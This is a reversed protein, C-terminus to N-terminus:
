QEYLISLYTGAWLEFDPIRRPDALAVRYSEEFLTECKAVVPNSQATQARGIRSYNTPSRVLPHVKEYFSRMTDTTLHEVHIRWADKCKRVLGEQELDEIIDSCTMGADCVFGM